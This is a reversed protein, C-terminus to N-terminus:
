GMDAEELQMAVLLLLTICNQVLLSLIRVGISIAPIVIWLNVPRKPAEDSIVTAETPSSDDVTYYTHGAKSLLPARESSYKSHVQISSAMKQHEAQSPGFVVAALKSAMGFDIRHDLRHGDISIIFAAFNKIFTLFLFHESSM